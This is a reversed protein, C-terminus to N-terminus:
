PPPRGPSPQQQIPRSVQSKLHAFPSATQGMLTLFIAGLSVGFLLGGDGAEKV